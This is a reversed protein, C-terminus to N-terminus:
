LRTKLKHVYYFEITKRIGEDFSIKPKWGTDGKFKSFDAIFNRKNIEHEKEPFPVHEISINIGTLEKTVGKIKEVVENFTKGTGSGLVYVEGNTKESEAALIFADIYNQVYCYDRIWNGEGYVTLPEERLARGIMFNLVGRNPNDIKQYEGFVNSLRLVCNKIGYESFYVSLFKEATLKNIDYISTPNERENEDSPMKQPMGIVTVTSPFVIKIHPNIEKCRELVNILGGVDNKLDEFPQSMSKKLDTQWVFHFLYDKDRITTEIAERNLLDGEIIKMNKHEKIDVIRWLDAGPKVFLFIENEEILRRALNSGLFGAGGTILIKKNKM